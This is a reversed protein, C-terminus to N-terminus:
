KKLIILHKNLINRIMDSKNCNLSMYWKYIAEDAEFAITHTKKGTKPRGQGPKNKM